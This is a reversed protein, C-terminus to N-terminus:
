YVRVRSILRTQTRGNPLYRVEYTERFTRWGSRVVRTFTRTYGVREGRAWPPRRYRRRRQGLEIRIQPTTVAAVPSAQAPTAAGIFVSSGLMLMTSLLKKM